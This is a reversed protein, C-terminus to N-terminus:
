LMAHHISCIRLAHCFSYTLPLFFKGTVFFRFNTYNKLTEMEEVPNYAFKLPFVQWHKQTTKTQTNQQKSNNNKKQTNKNNQNQNKGCFWSIGSGHEITRLLLLRRRGHQM